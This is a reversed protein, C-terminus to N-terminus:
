RMGLQPSRIGHSLGHSTGVWVDKGQFDVSLVFKHAIGTDTKRTEVLKGGDWLEIIGGDHHEDDTKYTVWKNTDYNLVSLGKDTCIWGTHTGPQARGFNIFNSALGSDHDFYSRWRRFNYVSLGFYTTAWLLGAQYSPSTTINHVLGDNPFLEIEFEGDPDLYHRFHDTKVDYEIIGGGWAAIFVKGDGACVNYCWNEDTPMNLTTYITWEGTKTNYRSTGATTAAWVDDGEMVVSYVVDNALGSNFQTFTKVIRGGSLWSLGGFTAVWIDGTRPDVEVCMVAQHGLGDKPKWTEIKGDRLHYCALGNDTGLWIRDKRVEDVEIWYIHDNPLGDKTTITEWQEYIPPYEEGPNAYSMSVSAVLLVLFFGLLIKRRKGRVKERTELALISEM